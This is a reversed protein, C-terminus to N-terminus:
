AAHTLEAGELEDETVVDLPESDLEEIIRCCLEDAQWLARLAAVEAGSFDGRRDFKRAIRASCCGRRVAERLRLAHARLRAGDVLGSYLADEHMTDM